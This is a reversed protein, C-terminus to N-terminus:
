SEPTGTQIAGMTVEPWPGRVDERAKKETAYAM